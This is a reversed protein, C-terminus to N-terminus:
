HPRRERASTGRRFAEPELRHKGLREIEIRAPEPVEAAVREFGHEGDAVDGAVTYWDKANGYKQGNGSAVSLINADASDYIGYKKQFAIVSKMSGVEGSGPFFVYLPDGSAYDNSAPESVICVGLTHKEQSAYDYYDNLPDRKMPTGAAEGEACACSLFALCLGAALAGLVLMRVLKRM